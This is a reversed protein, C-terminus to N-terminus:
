RVTVEEEEKEEEWFTGSFIDEWEPTTRYWALWSDDTSTVEERNTRLWRYKAADTAFMPRQKPMNIVQAETPTGADAVRELDQEPLRAEEKQREIRITSLEIPPQYELMQPPNLEAEAEEIRVQARKIRGEARKQAAQELFSSTPFYNRKNAEFEAVCILRGQRDRAWVRSADHIDYGM